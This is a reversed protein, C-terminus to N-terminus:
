SPGSARAGEGGSRVYVGADLPLVLRPTGINGTPLGVQGLLGSGWCWVGGAARACTHRGGSALQTVQTLGLEVPITSVLPGCSTTGCNPLGVGLYGIINNGWCWVVGRTSIGCYFSGGATLATFREASIIVTPHVLVNLEGTAGNALEGYAGVGYCRVAGQTDAFCASGGTGATAESQPLDGVETPVVCAVGTWRFWFTAGCDGAFSPIAIVSGPSGGWCLARRSDVEIGCWGVEHARVRAFRHGGAVAQPTVVDGRSGGSTGDGLAGFSGDGWCAVMGTPRVGCITYYGVELAVFRFGTAVLAVPSFPSAACWARGHTDLVCFARQGFAFQAAEVREGSVSRVDVHIPATAEGANGGWCTLAQNVAYCSASGSAGLWEGRMAELAATDVALSDTPPPRLPTTPPPSACAVGCLLGAVVTLLRGGKKRM